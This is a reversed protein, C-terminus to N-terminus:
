PTSGGGRTPTARRAPASTLETNVLGLLRPFETYGAASNFHGAGDIWIPHVGLHAALEETKALPVYPDNDSGLVYLRPCHTKIASWDFPKQAFTRNLRDLELGLPGLFGAVLFAARIPQQIRELVSLLFTAGVSHGVVITNTDFKCEFDAFADLWTKLDQGEPTPLRPAVALCGLKEVESKLWPFWNEEPSGFAGHVIYIKIM